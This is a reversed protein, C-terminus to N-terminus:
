GDYETVEVKKLDDMICDMCVEEGYYEYLEDVESKCWDCYLHPAHRNRCSSGICPYSETACNYCDNEYIIM